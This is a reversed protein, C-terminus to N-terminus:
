LLSKLYNSLEKNKAICDFKQNLQIIECEDNLSVRTFKEKPLFTIDPFYRYTFIESNDPEFIKEFRYEETEGFIDITFGLFEENTNIESLAFRISAESVVKEHYEDFWCGINHSFVNNLEVFSWFIRDKNELRLHIGLNNIHKETNFIKQIKEVDSEEFEDKIYIGSILQIDPHKIYLGSEALFTYAKKFDLAQKSTYYFIAGERAM